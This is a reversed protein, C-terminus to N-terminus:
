ISVETQRCFSGDVVVSCVSTWNTMKSEHEMDIDM